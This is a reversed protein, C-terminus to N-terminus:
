SLFSSNFEETRANGVFVMGPYHVIAIPPKAAKIAIEPTVACGWSMCVEGAKPVVAPAPHSPNWMPNTIDIGIKTGDGIDLPYGHSVPLESTIQVARVADNSTAFVRTSVIMGDCKFRGSPRCPINSIHTGNTVFNVHKQRLVGEFGMSCNLMFAVMNNKWYSLIDNPEDVLVGDKFVRYRHCDTRVDADPAIVPPHPSGPECVDAVYCARPNRLCFVLFELAYDQPVIAMSHQAYGMCYYQTLSSDPQWQRQRVLARFAQPTMRNRTEIEAPTIERHVLASHDFSGSGSTMTM